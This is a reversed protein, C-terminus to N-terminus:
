AVSLHVIPPSHDESLIVRLGNPLTTMRYQLQPPRVAASVPQLAGAGVAWALLVGLCSSRRRSTAFM